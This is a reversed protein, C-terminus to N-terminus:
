AVQGSPVTQPRLVSTHVEEDLATEGVDVEDLIFCGRFQERELLDAAREALFGNRLGELFNFSIAQECRLVVDNM